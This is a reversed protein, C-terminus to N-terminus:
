QHHTKANCSLDSLSCDNDLSYKRIASTYLLKYCDFIGKMGYIIDIICYIGKM